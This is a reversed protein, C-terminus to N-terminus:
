SPAPLPHIPTAFSAAPMSPRPRCALSPENMTANYPMTHMTIMRSDVVNM